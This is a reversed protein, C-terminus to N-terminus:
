RRRRAMALGGLGLLALTGNTPIMRTEAEISYIDTELGSIRLSLLDGIGNAATLTFTEPTQVLFNGINITGLTGIWELQTAGVDTFDGIVIQLYSVAENAATNFTILVEDPAILLRGGSIENFDGGGTFDSSLDLNFFPDIAADDFSEAYFGASAASTLAAAACAALLVNRTQMERDEVRWAGRSGVGASGV